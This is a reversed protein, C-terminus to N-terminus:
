KNNGIPFLQIIDEVPFTKCLNALISSTLSCHWNIRLTSYVYLLKIVANVDQVYAWTKGDFQKELFKEALKETSPTTITFKDKYTLDSVTQKFSQVLEKDCPKLYGGSYTPEYGYDKPLRFLIINYM